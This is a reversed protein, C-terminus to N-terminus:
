PAFARFLRAQRRSVAVAPGGRLQLSLRGGATPAVTAVFELNVLEARNARVFVRPDLQRELAALSRSLLLERDGWVLRVYNGDSAILRVERLPVLWCRAGERVFVRDCARRVDPACRRRLRHPPQDLGHEPRPAVRALAAALCRMVAFGVVAVPSAPRDGYIGLEISALVGVHFCALVFSVVVMRLALAGTGRDLWGGRPIMARTTHTLSIGLAAAILTEGGIRTTPLGQQLGQVITIAIYLGWGTLQCAWYARARTM